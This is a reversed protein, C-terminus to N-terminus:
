FCLGCDPCAPATSFVFGCAPCTQEESDPNFVADVFSHDHDDMRSTRRIEDEVIKIAFPADGVKVQLDFNSPCCGKGCSNEDGALLCGIGDAKLLNEFVRLDNLPRRQITVLEDGPLIELTRNARAQNETKQRALLETGSLLDLGCVGCKIIDARYEDKCNTCYKLDPDIM